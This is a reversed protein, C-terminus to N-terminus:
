ASRTHRWHHTRQIPQVCRYIPTEKRAWCTCCMPETQSQHRSALHAPGAAAASEAPYSCIPSRCPFSCIPFAVTLALVTVLFRSPRNHLLCEPPGQM